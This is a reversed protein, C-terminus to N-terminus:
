ESRIRTFTNVGQQYRGVYAGYHGAANDSYFQRMSDAVDPYAYDDWPVENASYFAVEAAEVTPHPEADDPLVGHYVLYVESIEPLSGVLYLDLSEPSIVAGTEEFLERAAAQEPTEGREAFGSPIAWRGKQPETGRRIWLM